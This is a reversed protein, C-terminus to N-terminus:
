IDLNKIKILLEPCLRKLHQEVFYVLKLNKKAGGFLHCIEKEKVFCPSNWDKDFICDIKNVVGELLIRNMFLYQDFIVMDINEINKNNYMDIVYTKYYDIIPQSINKFGLIGTNYSNKYNINWYKQAHKLGWKLNGEPESAYCIVDSVFNFGKFCFVDNDIFIFPKKQQLNNYIVEHKVKFTLDCKDTFNIINFIGLKELIPQYFNDTYVFINQSINKKTLIYSLIFFMLNHKEACRDPHALKNLSYIIKMINTGYYIVEPVPTM